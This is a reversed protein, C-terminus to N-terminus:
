GRNRGREIHPSLHNLFFEIGTKKGQDEIGNGVCDEGDIGFSANGGEVTHGFNEGAIILFVDDSPLAVLHEVRVEAPYAFGFLPFVEPHGDKILSRCAHKIIWDTNKDRDKKWAFATKIALAPHDKSIDNLNNAVAKRVYLSEDAKLKELVEIVIM